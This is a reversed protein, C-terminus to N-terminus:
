LMHHLHVVGSILKLGSPDANKDNSELLLFPRPVPDASRLHREGEQNIEIADHISGVSDLSRYKPGPM